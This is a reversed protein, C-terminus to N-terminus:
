RMALCAETPCHTGKFEALAGLFGAFSTFCTGGWDWLGSLIGGAQQLCQRGSSGHKEEEGESARCRASQSSGRAPHGRESPAAPPALCSTPYRFSRPQRQAYVIHTGAKGLAGDSM